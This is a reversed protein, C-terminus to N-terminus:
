PEALLKAVREELGERANMDRLVGKKDVLWMAPIGEIGFRQGLENGWGKGDFYQPWTMKQDTVFRTLEEKKEDFSVGLIEFGKPNLKEYAAKVNPLEQVCPGCWTAWFDVLVVKGRMGSLDVQRGDLAAFKLELPKGVMDMRALMAKASERIPAPVNTAMLSQATARAEEPSEEEALSLLVGFPEVRSPFEKALEQASQKMSARAAKMDNEALASAKRQAASMRIAFREEEGTGAEKLRDTEVAELKALANTAGLQVAADLLQLEHMRAMKARPDEPFKTYFTKALEAIGLALEGRKAQFAKVESEEPKTTRWSEPPEPPTSFKEQFETWAVDAPGGNTVDGLGAGPLPMAIPATAVPREAKPAGAADKPGSSAGDGCGALMVLGVAALAM